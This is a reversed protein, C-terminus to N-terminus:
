RDCGRDSALRLLELPSAARTAERCRLGKIARLRRALDPLEHRLVHQRCPGSSQPRVGVRLTLSTTTM